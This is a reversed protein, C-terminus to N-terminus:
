IFCYILYSYFLIATTYKVYDPYIWKIYEKNDKVWETAGGSLFSNWGEKKIYKSTLYLTIIILFPLSPLAILEKVIYITKDFHRISISLLIIILCIFDFYNFGTLFLSISVLCIALIDIIDHYKTFFNFIKKM